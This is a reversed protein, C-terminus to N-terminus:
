GPGFREARREKFQQFSFEGLKAPASLRLSYIL